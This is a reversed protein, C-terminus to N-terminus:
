RTTKGTIPGVEFEVAVGNHDSLDKAFWIVPASSTTCRRDLCIHDINDRAVEGFAPSRIDLATVCALGASELGERVAKRGGACGYGNDSHLTMNFDGAICLLHEPYEDRLAKWEAAQREAEKVHKEWPAGGPADRWPIITGYLLFLHPSDPPVAEACVSLGTKSVERLSWTEPVWVAAASESPDHAARASLSAVSRFRPLVFGSYTETLVWLDAAIERVKELQGAARATKGNKWPRDLNWTAIRM